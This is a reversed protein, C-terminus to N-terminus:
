GPGKSEHSYFMMESFLDFNPFKTSRM